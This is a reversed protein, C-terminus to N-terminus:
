RLSGVLPVGFTNDRHQFAGMDIYTTGIANPFTRQIGSGRVTAGAGANNNLEFDTTSVYPTSTLLKDSINTYPSVGDIKTGTTDDIGNRAATKNNWYANGDFYYDAPDGGAPNNFGYGQAATAGGSTLVNNWVINMLYSNLSRINDRGSGHVTNNFVISGYNYVIGDSTAGTNNTVLNGICVLMGGTGIIGTCANDHINSNFVGSTNNIAATAASTGLTVETGLIWSDQSNACDIGMLTFNKVVCNVTRGFSGALVIGKSTGLSNCDVIINEFSLGNGASNNLGILGTNTILQITVQGKDSRTTSYGIIRTMPQTAQPSAGTTFAISASIQQTSEAKMFIKNSAVYVAAAAALTKLAGGLNLTIGTGTAVARDVTITTANTRTAVQYWGAALSGTGGAMYLINGVHTTAFGATASTITTTGNAVADTVAIQAANQQSFDTGTSGAVFGGGNTDSGNTPRVEWATNISLAM